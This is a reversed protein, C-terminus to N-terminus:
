LQSSDRRYAHVAALPSVLTQTKNFFSLISKRVCTTTQELKCQTKFTRVLFINAVTSHFVVLSHRRFLFVSV